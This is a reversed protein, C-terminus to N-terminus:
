LASQYVTAGPHAAKALASPELNIRHQEHDSCSMLSIALLVVAIGERIKM